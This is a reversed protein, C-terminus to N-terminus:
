EVVLKKTSIGKISQIQILYIGKKLHSVDMDINESAKFSYQQVVRGTMDLITTNYTFLTKKNVSINESLVMHVMDTTPNPHMSFQVVANASTTPTGTFCDLSYAEPNEVRWDPNNIAFDINDVQICSLNSSRFADVETLSLNNGNALNLQTLTEMRSIDVLTVNPNLSLDLSIISNRSLYVATLARNQSLDIATLQENRGCDLITLATNSSLNLESLRNATMNLEELKTNAQLNIATIPNGGLDLIKLETNQSLDLTTLQTINSLLTTLKTNQTVDLDHLGGGDNQASCNLSVLHVNSSLSLSDIFNNSCDLTKLLLFDEIGTLNQINRSSINLSTITSITNTLVYDDLVDDLGFDILAQEFNDDPIFTRAESVGEQLEFRITRTDGSIGEADKGSYPIVKITYEGPPMTQSQFIEEFDGFLTYPRVNEVQLHNIPGELELRVSGTNANAEAIITNEGNVFPAAFSAGFELESKNELAGEDNVRQIFLNTIRPDDTRISFELTFSTGSDGHADPATFPTATISYQGPPLEKGFFDGEFDGFQTYPFVNEVRSLNIDPGQIHMQVSGGDFVATRAEFSLFPNNESVGLIVTGQAINGTTSLRNNIPDVQAIGLVTNSAEGVSFHISVRDSSASTNPSTRLRASFCYAGEPFSAGFYNNGDNGFLSFPFTRESQKHRLPGDLEMEVIGSNMDGIPIPTTPEIRIGLKRNGIFTKSIVLDNTLHVLDENTEADVLIANLFLGDYATESSKLKDNELPRSISDKASLLSLFFLFSFCLTCVKTKTKM